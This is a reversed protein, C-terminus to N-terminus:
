DCTKKELIFLNVIWLGWTTELSPYILLSIPRWPKSCLVPLQRIHLWFNHWKENDNYLRMNPMGRKLFFSKHVFRQMSTYPVLVNNYKLGRKQVIYMCHIYMCTYLFPFYWASGPPHLFDSGLTHVLSLGWGGPCMGVFLRNGSITYKCAAHAQRQWSCTTM